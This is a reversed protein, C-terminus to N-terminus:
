LTVEGELEIHICDTERRTLLEAFSTFGDFATVQELNSGDVDIMFLSLSGATVNTRIRLSSSESETLRLQPAFSACGFRTIQKADSGDANAVYLEMKM